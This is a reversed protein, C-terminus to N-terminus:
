ESLKSMRFSLHRNQDFALEHTESEYGAAEVRVQHLQTDRPVRRTEGIPWPQGDLTLRASAPRVEITLSMDDSAPAASNAATAADIEALMNVPAREVGEQVARGFRLWSATAVGALLALVVAGVWVTRLRAPRRRLGSQSLPPTSASAPVTAALPDDDGLQLKAADPAKQALRPQWEPLLMGSTPLAEGLARELEAASQCRAEPDRAFARHITACLAEPLDPRLGQLPKPTGSIVEVMLRPVTSAEFPISGALARYLMVGIAYIDTRYDVPRGQIQEPSMYYPTGMVTGEATLVRPRLTERRERIKSLGFDLVKVFCSYGARDILFINDPKLDRHIVGNAHAADMARCIQRAVYVAELEPQPGRKLRSSLSEGVLQEMVIYPAGSPLAGLDLVDVIHDCGAQGSARAERRFRALTEADHPQDGRLCKIAVRRGIAENEAAYVSGMGGSGLLSLIRYRGDILQGPALSYRRDEAPMNVANVSM